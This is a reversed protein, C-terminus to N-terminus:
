QLIKRWNQDAAAKLRAENKNWKTLTNNFFANYFVHLRGNVIKFTEPDFDVKEGSDGMAFACWGGYAPEYRDPNKLFADRHAASAFRYIVGRHKVQFDPRGKQAKREDLYSVADYGHLAVGEDLNQHTPPVPQSTQAVAKSQGLALCLGALFLLKKM